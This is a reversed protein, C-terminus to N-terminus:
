SGLKMIAYLRLFFLTEVLLKRNVEVYDSGINILHLRSELIEYFVYYANLCTLPM